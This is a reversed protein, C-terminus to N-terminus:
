TANSKSFTWSKSRRKMLILNSSLVSGCRICFKSSIRVEPVSAHLLQMPLGDSVSSDSGGSDSEIDSLLDLKDEINIDDANVDVDSTKLREVIAKKIM